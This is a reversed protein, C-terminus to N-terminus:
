YSQGAIHTMIFVAHVKPSPVWNEILFIFYNQLIFTIFMLLHGLQESSVQRPPDRPARCKTATSPPSTAGPCAPTMRPTGAAAVAPAPARLLAPPCVDAPSACIFGKQVLQLACKVGFM